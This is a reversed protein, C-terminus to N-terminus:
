GTALNTSCPNDPRRLMSDGWTLIEVSLESLMMPTDVMLPCGTPPPPPPPLVKEVRKTVDVANTDLRITDLMLPASNVLVEIVTGLIVASIASRALADRDVTCNLGVTPPMLGFMSKPIPPKKPPTAPPSPLPTNLVASPAVASAVPIAPRVIGLVITFPLLVLILGLAKSSTFPVVWSCTLVRKVADLLTSRRTDDDAAFTGPRSYKTDLMM